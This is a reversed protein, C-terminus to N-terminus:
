RADALAANVQRLDDQGLAGVAAKLRLQSMLWGYRAGSLDRQTRYYNQQANLVDVGTRVGTEYGLATADLAKKSAREARELARVRAAATTTGLYSDRALKRALTRSGEYQFQAAEERAKTERVRSAVVGGAFLPVQLQLGVQTQDYDFLAPSFVNGTRITSRSAIFDLTPYHGSRSKETEEAAMTVLTQLVRVGPNGQAARDEWHRPEAPEPDTIALDDRLRALAPAAGGTLAGLASRRADLEGQAAVLQAETLELRARAEHVDIVTASGVNFNREALQRVGSVANRETEAFRLQDEAALVDFYAQTSRLALDQEAAGLAIEAQESGARAQRYAAANQKRYLPQTLQLTYTDSDYNATHPPAPERVTQDVRFRTASFGVTPLLGARGQVELERGAGAAAQAAGWTPDNQRALQYIALLDEAGAPAALGLAIGAALPTLLFMRRM